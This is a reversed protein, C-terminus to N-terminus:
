YGPRSFQSNLQAVGLLQDYRGGLERYYVLIMYHDESEWWNGETFSTSFGSKNDAKDKTVYMYDYYGQKLKLTTEYAGSSANFRMKASDLMGYNTIEGFLYVDKGPYPANGPPIYTFHVKAYEAEWFPNVNETTESTFMGNLDRFFYYRQNVRDTEPKVYLEFTSDTNTQKQVRDGLLRFSRLNLWRWEKGAAVLFDKETNYEVMDNRFFLPPIDKICNDWRYNQLAVVKIQQNPYTVTVGKTSVAVQLKHHTRFFQQTFPQQVQAAIALKSDYVLLRRTFALQTTDGNLFVKLIYNGAKTPMCNRDPLTAQYHIYRTLVSSSVRYTSIRVQTFGRVFDFYSMQVPSWDSNCLQFTYFYNKVEPDMDDFNLELKDNGNLRIIPYGLQDGYINFKITRINPNFVQDPYRQAASYFFFM